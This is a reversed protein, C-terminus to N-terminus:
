DFLTQRSDSKSTHTDLFDQRKFCSVSDNIFEFSVSLTHDERVAAEIEEVGPMGAAERFGPLETINQENRHVTVAAYPRKLPRPPGDLGLSVTRLNKRRKLRNVVDSHEFIKRGLADDRSHKRLHQNLAGIPSRILDHSPRLDLSGSSRHQGDRNHM